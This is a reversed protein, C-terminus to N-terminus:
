PAYQQRRGLTTSGFTAAQLGAKPVYLLDEYDAEPIQCVSSGNEAVGLCWTRVGQM